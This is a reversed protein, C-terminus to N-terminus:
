PRAGLAQYLAATDSYRQAQVKVRDLTTQLEQRRFDLLALQSIGGLEYRGSAIEGSEHAARRAEDRSQLEDGDHQLARLADAVEQLGQLM